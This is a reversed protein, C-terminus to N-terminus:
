LLVVHHIPRKMAKVLTTENTGGASRDRRTMGTETEETGQGTLTRLRARRRGGEWTSFRVFRAGDWQDPDVQPVVDDALALLRPLGTVVTVGTPATRCAVVARRRCQRIIVGDANGGDGKGVAPEGAHGVGWGAFRAITTVTRRGRGTGSVEPRDEFGEM